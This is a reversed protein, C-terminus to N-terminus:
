DELNNLRPFHNSKARHNRAVGVLHSGFCHAWAQDVENLPFPQEPEYLPASFQSETGGQGNTSVKLGCATVNMVQNERTRRRSFQGSKQKRPHASIQGRGFVRSNMSRDRM